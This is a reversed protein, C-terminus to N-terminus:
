IEFLVDKNKKGSDQGGRWCIDRLTSTRYWFNLSKFFAKKACIRKQLCFNQKASFCNTRTPMIDFIQRYPNWERLKKFLVTCTIEVFFVFSINKSYFVCLINLNQTLFFIDSGELSFFLSARKSDGRFTYELM